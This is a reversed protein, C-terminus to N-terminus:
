PIKEMKYFHWSKKSTCYFQQSPLDNGSKRFFDECLCFIILNDMYQTVWFNDFIQVTIKRIRIPFIAHNATYIQPLKQTVWYMQVTWFILFCSKTNSTWEDVHQSALVEWNNEWSKLIDFHWWKLWLSYQPGTRTALSQLQGPQSSSRSPQCDGVQQLWWWIHPFWWFQKILTILFNKKFMVFTKSPMKPIVFVYKKENSTRHSSFSQNKHTKVTPLRGPPRTPGPEDM